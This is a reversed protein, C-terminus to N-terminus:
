KENRRLGLQTLVNEQKGFMKEEQEEDQHDYGLLHFVGHTVLFAMERELSHGYEEAQRVATEISLVIDGLMLLNEDLDFDGTDSIIKGEQMDVLPFSLVDTPSDINRHERNVERISEDDTILISIESPISFNELKLSLEVAKLLLNELESGVQIKDQENEILIAM